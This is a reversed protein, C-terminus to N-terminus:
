EEERRGRSMLKRITRFRKSTPKERYRYLLFLGLILSIFGIMFWQTVGTGTSASNGYLLLLFGGVLSFFIGIRTGM